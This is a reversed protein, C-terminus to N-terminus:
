DLKPQKKQQKKKKAEVLVEVMDATLMSEEM